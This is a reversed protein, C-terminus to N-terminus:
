NESVGLDWRCAKMSVGRQSSDALSCSAGHFAWGKLYWFSADLTKLTSRPTWFKPLSQLEHSLTLAEPEPHRHQLGAHLTNVTHYWPDFEAAHRRTNSRHLCLAVHTQLIQVGAFTFQSMSFFIGFGLLNVGCGMHRISEEEVRFGNVRMAQASLQAWSSARPRFLEKADFECAHQPSM